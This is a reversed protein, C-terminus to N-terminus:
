CCFLHPHCCAAVLDIQGDPDFGM